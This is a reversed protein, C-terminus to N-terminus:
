QAPHLPERLSVTSAASRDKLNKATEQESTAYLMRYVSANRMIAQVYERTETFPISEVFEFVDRYNGQQRWDVVRDDGANYAALAYELAGFKDVMTRFYRTGLQINVTPTFLQSANFNRLRVDRAVLRGTKPLLQMLGVANARSVANPNFASEQRILSAVVYPDLANADAFKRLDTWFPRPFLAKWYADPLENLDMAFYTPVARKLVEIARDFRGAEQCVRAMEAAEWNGGEEKAAQQLERIAFELLAGNALLRAKQIQLNDAPPTDLESKPKYPATRVKQLVADEVPTAALLPRLRQRALEAYYYNRFTQAVKLYYARARGPENEEEALRGRWYLAASIEPSDPYLAIQQEFGQKAEVTRGLRWAMWTAKWHAYHAVGGTPFRQQLERYFELARDYQKDLLFKNATSLLAQEFWPSAPAIQRMQDLTALMTKQDDSSRQLEALMYLRQANAEGTTDTVSEVFRRAEQRRGSRFLANGLAAEITPRDAASVENLLARYADASESYRKGRSLLDARLKRDSFSGPVPGLKQLDRLADDAESSLPMTYYINALITTAKARDGTAAYARGLMLELDSRTPQRDKELLDIAEQKRSLSVLATARIVHADRLFISDPYKTDFNSLLADAQSNAGSQQQAVALFYDAYDGLDGAHPQAHKFAEMSRGLDHDQLRAYGLVLWALAGADDSAHKRAYTEVGAYAAASRDQLLQQAMPRLTTSAQFARKVRRVRQPSARHKASRKKGKSVTKRTSTKHTSKKKHTTQAVGTGSGLGLILGLVLIPIFVFRRSSV